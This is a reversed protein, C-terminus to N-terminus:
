RMTSPCSGRSAVAYRHDRHWMFILDQLIRFTWLQRQCLQTSAYVDDVDHQWM